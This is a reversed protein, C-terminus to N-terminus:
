AATTTLSLMRSPRGTTPRHDEIVLRDPFAQAVVEVQAPDFGHHDRLDRLTMRGDRRSLLRSLRDCQARLEDRRSAAQIKLGSRCCWLTIEVARRAQGETLVLPAGEPAPDTLADAVCQGVAIRIANERWRALVGWIDRYVGNGLLAAENFLLRFVERAAPSCTIVVPETAQSRTTLTTRVLADWDRGATESVERVIGDDLPIEGAEVTFSLIRAVMGRERAEQNGMLERLIFPQCLWCTSLCPVLTTDGRGVRSERYSEVTYGSLYLDFDASEDRNFKGLVVRVLEGAEPSYSMLAQGNRALLGTLAASTVNGVWYTPDFGVLTSIEAMRGEMRAMDEQMEREQAPELKGCDKPNTLTDLLHKQKRALLKQEVKLKPRAELKFQAAVEDSATLLPRIIATAVGKGYSHGAGIVVYINGYTECGNVAGVCKWGKGLSGAFTAIATMGPLEVAVRRVKATEEVIQRMVQNLAHIPFPGPDTDWAKDVVGVDLTPAAAAAPLAGLPEPQIVATAAHDGAPAVSEAPAPTISDSMAPEKAVAPQPAAAAPLATAAAVDVPHEPLLGAKDGNVPPPPPEVWAAWKKSVSFITAVSLSFEKAVQKVRIGERRRRLIRQDRDSPTAPSRSGRPRKPCGAQRAWSSITAESRGYEQAISKCPRGNKYDEVAAKKKEDLTMHATLDAENTETQTNNNTNM